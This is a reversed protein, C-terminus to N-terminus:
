TNQEFFELAEQVLSLDHLGKPTSQFNSLRKFQNDLEEKLLPHKQKILLPGFRLAAELPLELYSPDSSSNQELTLIEYNWFGKIMQEAVLHYNGLAWRRIPEANDNPQLIIKHPLKEPYANLITVILKAGMGTISLSDVAQTIPELGDGLIVKANLYRLTNKANQFPKPNKEIVIIHKVHKHELLYKPLLAHDSGIDLHTNCYIEKAAALLRPELM